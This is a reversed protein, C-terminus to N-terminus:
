IHKPLIGLTTNNLLLSFPEALIFEVTKDDIVNVDVGEWAARKTSKVVPDKVLSITYAIDNATVKKGDHFVANDKLTFTYVKGDESVTYSEGLDPVLGESSKRMLGSYVLATLDNDADSISLVPNIFRPTGVIGETISGGEEPVEISLRVNILALMALVTGILVVGSVSVLLWERRNLSHFITSWEKKSPWFSAKKKFNM